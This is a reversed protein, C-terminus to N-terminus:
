YSVIGRIFIPNTIAALEDLPRGYQYIEVRFWTIGMKTTEMFKIHTERTSSLPMECYIGENTKIKVFGSRDMLSVDLFMLYPEGVPLRLEDGIM